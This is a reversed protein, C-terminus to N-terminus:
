TRKKMSNGIWNKTGLMLQLDTADFSTEERHEM